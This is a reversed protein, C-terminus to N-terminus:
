IHILSLMYIAPRKGSVSDDYVIRGEYRKGEYEYPVPHEIMAM